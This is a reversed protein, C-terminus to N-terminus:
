TSHLAAAILWLLRTTRWRACCPLMFSRCVTLRRMLREPELSLFFAAAEFALPSFAAPLPPAGHSAPMGPAGRTAASTPASGLSRSAGGSSRGSSKRLFISAQEAASSKPWSVAWRSFSALRWVSSSITSYTLLVRLQKLSDRMCLTTLMTPAFMKRAKCVRLLSTNVKESGSSSSGYKSFVQGCRCITYSSNKRKTTDFSTSGLIALLNTSWFKM